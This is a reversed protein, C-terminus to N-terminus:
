MMIFILDPDCQEIYAFPNDTFANIYRLDVRIIEKYLLALFPATVNTFSNKIMVIKKDIPAKQNRLIQLPFDGNLYCNYLSGNYYGKNETNIHQSWIMTEEFSGKRYEWGGNDPIYTDSEMATEFNPVILTFDDVGATWLGVKKGQTGLFQKELVTFTFREPKLWNENYGFGFIEDFKKAILDASWLGSEATWHHDTRFYFSLFDRGTKDMEEKFNIIPMKEAIKSINSQTIRFNQKAHPGAHETKYPVHAFVLPIKKMAFYNYLDLTDAVNEDSFSKDFFVLYNDRIKVIRDEDNGLGESRTLWRFYRNANFIFTKASNPPNKFYKEIINKIHLILAKTKNVKKILLNEQSQTTPKQKKEIQNIEKKTVTITNKGILTKVVPKTLQYYGKPTVAFMPLLFVIFVVIASKQTSIKKM